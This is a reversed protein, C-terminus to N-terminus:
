LILYSGVSLSFSDSVGNGMPDVYQITYMDIYMQWSFQGFALTYIIYTM